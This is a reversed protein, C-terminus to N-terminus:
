LDLFVSESRGDASQDSLIKIKTESHTEIRMLNKRGKGVIQTIYEEAVEINRKEPINEQLQLCNCINISAYFAHSRPYNLLVRKLEDSIIFTPISVTCTDACSTKTKIM